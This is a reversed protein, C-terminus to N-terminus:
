NNMYMFQIRYVQYTYNTAQSACVRVVKVVIRNDWNIIVHCAIVASRHTQNSLNWSALLATDILINNNAQFQVRLIYVFINVYM